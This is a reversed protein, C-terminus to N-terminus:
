QDTDSGQDRDTSGAQGDPSTGTAPTTGSSTGHGPM